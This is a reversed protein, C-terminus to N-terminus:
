WAEEEGAAVDSTNYGVLGLVELTTICADNDGRFSYFRVVRTLFQLVM